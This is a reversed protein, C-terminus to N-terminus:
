NELITKLKNLKESWYTKMEACEKSNRLKLHQVVVTSKNDSKMYFNVSIRTKDKIWLARLSKCETKTSIEFKDKIWKSIIKKDTFAKYINKVDTDITKSISIEFGSPNQHKERLGKNKEYAATIMQSWWGSIKYSKYVWEAIEKHTKKKSGTKDLATFWEKWVKGTSKKVAEDSAIKKRLVKIEAM